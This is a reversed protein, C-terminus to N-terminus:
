EVLDRLSLKYSSPVLSRVARHDGARLASRQVARGHEAVEEGHVAKM